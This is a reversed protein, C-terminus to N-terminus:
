PNPIRTRGLNQLEDLTNAEIVLENSWAEDVGKKVWRRMNQQLRETECVLLVIPYEKTLTWEGSDPNALAEDFHRRAEEATPPIKYIDCINAQTFDGAKRAQKMEDVIRRLSYISTDKEGKPTASPECLRSRYTILPRSGDLCCLLLPVTIIPRASQRMGRM